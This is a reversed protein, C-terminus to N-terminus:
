RPSYSDHRAKKPGRSSFGFRYRTSARIAGLSFLVPKLWFGVLGVPTPATPMGRTALWRNLRLYSAADIGAALLLAILALWCRRRVSTVFVVALGLPGLLWYGLGAVRVLLGLRLGYRKLVQELAAVEGIFWRSSQEILEDFSTPVEARDFGGFDIRIRGGGYSLRYGLELDEGHIDRRFPQRRLLQPDIALGHGVLYWGHSRRANNAEFSLAWRTQNLAVGEWLSGANRRPRYFSLQQVVESGVLPRCPLSTPASDVDYLAFPADAVSAFANVLAAKSHDDGSVVFMAIRSERLANATAQDDENAAVLFTVTVTPYCQEFFAATAPATQSEEFCPIVVHDVTLETTPERAMLRTTRTMRSLQLVQRVLLCSAFLVQARGWARLRAM